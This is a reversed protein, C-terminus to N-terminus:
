TAMGEAIDALERLRQALERMRAAPIARARARITTLQNSGAAGSRNAKAPRGSSTTTSIGMRM